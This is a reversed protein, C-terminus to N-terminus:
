YPISLKTHTHTCLMDRWQGSISTLERIHILEPLVYTHPGERDALPADLPASSGLVSDLDRCIGYYYCQTVNVDSLGLMWYCYCCEILNGDRLGLMRYYYGREKVNVDSSIRVDWLLVTNCTDTMYDTLESM